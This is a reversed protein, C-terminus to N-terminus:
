NLIGSSITSAPLAVICFLRPKIGPDTNCFLFSKPINLKDKVASGFDYIQYIKQKYNNIKAEKDIIKKNGVLVLRKKKIIKDKMPDDDPLDKTGDVLADLHTEAKKIKFQETQKNEVLKFEQWRM